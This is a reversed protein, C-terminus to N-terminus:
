KKWKIQQKENCPHNRHPFIYCDEYDHTSIKLFDMVIKISVTTAVFWNIGIKIFFPRLWETVTNLCSVKDAYWAKNKKKSRM